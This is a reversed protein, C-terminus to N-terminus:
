AVRRYRRRQRAGRLEIGELMLMLQAPDIEVHQRGPLPRTPLSLRGESLRKYVLVYGTRDWLLLKIRDMRRNIFAFIHGSSPDQRVIERAAAALGDFGKRLDVPESCVFIRVSPPLTLM